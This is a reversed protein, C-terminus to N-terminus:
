TRVFRQPVAREAPPASATEPHEARLLAALEELAAAPMRAYAPLFVVQALLARSSAPDAAKRDAPPPVAILSSRRTADFGARRLASVLSQPDRALVPFVWYSHFPAGRGPLALGRPLFSALRAGNRARAAARTSGERTLRRELLALLPASPTHRLAGLLDPGPFGRVSGHLIADLDQGRREVRRVFRAFLWPSSCLLLFTAKLVRAAFKRRAQVPWASELERMRALLRADRVVAIGGGLATLTKITGFSFFSVLAAENGRWVDGTYAQACDELLLLGHERAFAVLPGMEIRAGFLHAVLMARTRPGVAARLAEPSPAMTALDLDVPVPVLGHAELVRTMDAITLASVLVESGPPLALADLLLDLASRVSLCAFTRGRKASSAEFAAEVRARRRARERAGLVATGAAILDRFGLDLQLRAWM